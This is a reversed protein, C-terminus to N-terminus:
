EKIQATISEVPLKITMQFKLLSLEWQFYQKKLKAELKQMVNLM